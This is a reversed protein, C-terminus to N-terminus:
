FLSLSLGLSFGNLETSNKGKFYPTLNYSAVVGLNRIGLRVHTSFVWDNFDYFGITKNETRLGDQQERIRTATRLQYGVKGGIHLKVHKWGKTRFRLEVPVFLQNTSFVSRKIDTDTPFVELLTAQLDADRQLYKGDLSIRTYQYGLGIGFSINDNTIPIDFIAQGNWGISSAKQQFPKVSKGTWDNYLVEFVLRDYRPMKEAVGPRLGTYFWMLGPRFRSILEADQKQARASLVCGILCFGIIIRFM